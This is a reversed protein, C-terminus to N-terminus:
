AEFGYAPLPTFVGMEPPGAMLPGFVAMAESMAADEGQATMGAQDTFVAFFAYKTGEGRLYSYIEIGEVNPAAATFAAIAEDMEDNKGELCNFTGVMAVKSM